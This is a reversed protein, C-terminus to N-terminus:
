TIPQLGSHEQWIICCGFGCAGEPRRSPEDAIGVERAVEPQRSTPGGGAVPSTAGASRSYRTCLYSGIAYYLLM